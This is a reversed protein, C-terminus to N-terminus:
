PPPSVARLLSLSSSFPRPPNLSLPPGACACARRVKHGHYTGLNTAQGAWRVFMRRSGCQGYSSPEVWFDPYAARVRKIFAKINGRGGVVDDSGGGWIEDIHVADDALLKDVLDTKGQISSSPPLPTVPRTTPTPNQKAHSAHSAGGRGRRAGRSDVWGTM